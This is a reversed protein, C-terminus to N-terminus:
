FKTSFGFALLAGTDTDASTIQEDESDELTLEGDLFAGAYLDLTTNRNPSWTLRSFVPLGLVEGIGNPVLGDNNLRFRNSRYAGGGAIEWESNIRYSLELGAPGAPGPRFPNGLVLRETIHWSVVIMPYVDTKELRYFAGVGFGLNLKEGFQKFTSVVAGYEMAEQWDAGSEMGVGVSPLVMFSWGERSLKRIPFSINLGHVTGWPDLAAFGSSGSFRYDVLDYSIGVGFSTASRAPFDYDLRFLMGNFSYNGGGEVGTDLQSVPMISLSIREDGGFGAGPPQALAPAALLLLAFLYLLLNKTSPM